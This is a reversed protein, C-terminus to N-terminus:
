RGSLRRLRGAILRSLDRSALWGAQRELATADLCLYGALYVLLGVSAIAGLALWSSPSAWANLALVVLAM